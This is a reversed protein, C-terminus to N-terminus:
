SSALAVELSFRVQRRDQESGETAASIRVDAVVTEALLADVFASLAGHDAAEGRLQVRNSTQQATTVRNFDWQRLWVPYDVSAKEIVGLLVTTAGRSQLVELTKSQERLATHVARLAKYQSARAGAATTATTVQALQAQARENLSHMLALVIGAVVLAVVLTMGWYRFLRQVVIHQRYSAPILDFENM